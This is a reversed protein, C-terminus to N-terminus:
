NTVEEMLLVASDYPKQINLKVGVKMLFDGSFTKENSAFVSRTDKMNLETVKYQKDPNLGKMKTEYFTGRQHYKMGYAFFVAQTKDKAVYMLSSWGAESYPSQIRYLDGLQVIPRIRKYDAIAKKAFDIDDGDIDKPQLEMGLRGSMAVDFRFKLPLIMGTQHNPSASVHSAIAQAPFFTSTGYQIFVRSAANTNDSTWFEDHYKLSGFDLRGGGSACVQIETDPYKARIREYVNYLGKVYDYWFHTQKDAPLYDSGASSVHRNADWKIYTINPSMAMVDDFTKVV